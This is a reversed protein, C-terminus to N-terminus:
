LKVTEEGELRHTCGLASPDCAEGLAALTRWGFARLQAARHPDHGLPLFLTDRAPEREALADILRDPFLSFGIAPEDIGLISYSGGRGLEGAIGEAYIVFGFWSQYEFGHRESPDLTLRAM